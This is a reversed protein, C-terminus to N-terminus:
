FRNTAVGYPNLDWQRCYACLKLNQAKKERKYEFGMEQKEMKNGIM